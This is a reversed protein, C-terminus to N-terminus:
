AVANWQDIVCNVGAEIHAATKHMVTQLLVDVLCISLPNAGVNPECHIHRWKGSCECDKAVHWSM